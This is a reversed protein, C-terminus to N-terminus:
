MTTEPSIIPLKPAYVFSHRHSKRGSTTVSSTSHSSADMSSTNTTATDVSGSTYSSRRSPQVRPKSTIPEYNPAHARSQRPTPKRRPASSSTSHGSVDTKTTTTATASAFVRRRLSQFQPQSQPPKSILLENPAHGLPQSRAHEIESSYASSYGGEGLSNSNCTTSTTTTRAPSDLTSPSRLENRTQHKRLPTAPSVSTSTRPPVNSETGIQLAEMEDKLGMFHAYDQSRSVIEHYVTALLKPNIQGQNRQAVQERLVAQISTVKANQRQKGRQPERTELGWICIDNSDDSQGYGQKKHYCSTLFRRQGMIM